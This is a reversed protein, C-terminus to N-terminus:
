NTQYRGMFTKEIRHPSSCDYKLSKHKKESQFETKKPEPVSYQNNPYLKPTNNDEVNHYSQPILYM